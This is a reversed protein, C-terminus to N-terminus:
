NSLADAALYRSNLQSLNAALDVVHEVRTAGEIDIIQRSDQAYATNSNLYTICITSIELGRQAEEASGNYYWGLGDAKRGSKSIFSADIAAIREKQEPFTLAILTM